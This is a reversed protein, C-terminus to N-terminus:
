KKVFFQLLAVYLFPFAYFLNGALVVCNEDFGLFLGIGSFQLCPVIGAAPLMAVLAPLYRTMFNGASSVVDTFTRYNGYMFGYVFSVALVGVFLVLLWGQALPSSHLEGTVGLLSQWPSITFMFLIALYLLLVAVSFFFSRLGNSNAKGHSFLGVIPQLIGSGSLIGAMFLLFFTMGWPAAAISSSVSLLAWRVGEGSVISIIAASEGMLLQVVSVIWSVMWILVLLLAYFLAPYYAIRRENM